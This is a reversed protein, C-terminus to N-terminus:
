KSLNFLNKYKEPDNKSMEMLGQPDNKKWDVFSWGSRDDKVDELKIANRFLVPNTAPIADLMNKVGELDKKANQFIIDKAEAKIKGEKVANEVLSLAEAETKEELVKKLNSVEEQIASLKSEAEEKAQLASEKQAQLEDIKALVDDQTAENSLSFRNVIKDMPKEKKLLLNNSIEYAKAWNSVKGVKVISPFDDDFFGAEIAESANMWTEKSMMKSIVKVDKGSSNALQEALTEKIKSLVELGKEGNSGGSPDHMMFLGNSVIYRKTGYM